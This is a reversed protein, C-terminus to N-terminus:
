KEDTLFRYLFTVIQARTCTANPSFATASTGKTIGNEVAWLVPEFFYDGERVDYFPSDHSRLFYKRGARSLFTVIQGRTCTADPSFTSPGTGVTIGREVAWLVARYFYDSEKVDSFPNDKSIPEPCRAARWLFTVVQGRTCGNDPGFKTESLGKTIEHDIAWRVAEAYYADDRVDEFRLFRPNLAGCRLCTEFARDPGFDHGLPPNETPSTFGETADADPFIMGCGSCKYHEEVGGTTCTPEVAPVFELDHAVSFVVTRIGMISNTPIVSTNADIENASGGLTLSALDNPSEPFYYEPKAMLTIFAEYKRGGKFVESPDLEEYSSDVLAYWFYSDVTFPADDAATFAPLSTGCSPTVLGNINVDSIELNLDFIVSTMIFDDGRFEYNAENVLDESGNLTMAPVFDASFSFGEKPVLTVSLYYSLHSFAEDLGIASDDEDYWIVKGITYPADDAVTLSYDPHEGVAPPTFGNVNVETIVVGAGVSVAFVSVLSFATALTLLVSLIKKHLKM